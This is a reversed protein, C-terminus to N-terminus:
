PDRPSEADLRTTSVLPPVFALREGEAAADAAQAAVLLRRVVAAPDVRGRRNQSYGAVANYATGYAPHHLALTGYVAEAVALFARAEADGRLGRSARRLARPLLDLSGAVRYPGRRSDQVFVYQAAAHLDYLWLANAPMRGVPSRDRLDFALANANVVVRLDQDPPGLRVYVEGRDDYGRPDDAGYASRAFAVRGLHEILRENVPSSPLDDESGWWRVLADGAGSALASLTGRRLSEEVRWGAREDAPLIPALQRLHRLLIVSEADTAPADLQALLSLYAGAAEDYYTADESGFVVQVFADAEAVTEGPTPRAEGGSQAAAGGAAVALAIALILRPSRTVM